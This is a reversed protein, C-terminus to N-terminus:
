ALNHKRTWDNSSLVQDGPQSTSQGPPGEGVSRPNADLAENSTHAQM